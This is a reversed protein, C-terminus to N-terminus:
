IGNLMECRSLLVNEREQFLFNWFWLTPCFSIQSEYQQIGVGLSFFSAVSVDACWSVASLIQMIQACSATKACLNKGKMESPHPFSALMNKASSIFLQSAYIAVCLLHNLFTSKISHLHCGSFFIYLFYHKILSSSVSNFIGNM